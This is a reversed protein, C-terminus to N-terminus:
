LGFYNYLKSGNGTLRADICMNMFHETGYQLTYFSVTEQLLHNMEEPRSRGKIFKDFATKYVSSKKFVKTSSNRFNPIHKRGCKHPIIGSILDFARIVFERNCKPCVAQFTYIYTDNTEQKSVSIIKIGRITADVFSQYFSFEKPTENLIVKRIRMPIHRVRKERSFKDCSCKTSALSVFIGKPIDYFLCGCERCLITFSAYNSKKSVALITYTGWTSGVVLPVEKPTEIEINEKHRNTSYEPLSPRIYEIKEPEPFKFSYTRVKKPRDRLSQYFTQSACRYDNIDNINNEKRFRLMEELSPKRPDNFAKWVLRDPINYKKSIEIATLYEGNYEYRKGEKRAM